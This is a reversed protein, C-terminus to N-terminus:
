FAADKPKRYDRASKGTAKKLVRSFYNYDSFGTADAIEASTMGTTMLLHEAYRIRRKQIYTSLSCNLHSQSITYLRTRSIGFHRCLDSVMIRESMHADVYTNLLNAFQAKGISIMQENLFYSAIANLISASAIIEEMDRIDIANVAEEMLARDGACYTQLMHAKTQDATAADLVQGFMVYCLVIESSVIPIEIKM